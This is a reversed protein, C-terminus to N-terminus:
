KLRLSLGAVCLHVEDATRAVMQNVAGLLDRFKRGEVSEPIVGFGVEDSVLIVPPEGKAAESLFNELISIIEEPGEESLMRASVWLTLSDLLVADCDGTAPMVRCPDGGGLEFTSWSAPRRARHAEIRATLDPDGDPLATAVYLVSEGLTAAMEEAFVSKGSRAGGLVLARVPM